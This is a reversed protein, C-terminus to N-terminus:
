LGAVVYALIPFNGQLPGKPWKAARDPEGYGSYASNIPKGIIVWYKRITAIVLGGAGTAAGYCTLEAM